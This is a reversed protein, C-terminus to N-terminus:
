ARVWQCMFPTQWSGHCTYMNLTSFSYWDEWYQNYLEFDTQCGIGCGICVYSEYSGDAYYIYAMMGPVAGSLTCFAQNNHDGILLTDSYRIASDNWDAIAQAGYDWINTWFLAVSIGLDPIELRGANGYGNINCSGANYWSGSVDEPEEEIPTCSKVMTERSSDDLNDIAPYGGGSVGTDFFHQAFVLQTFLLVFCLCFSVSVIIKRKKGTM